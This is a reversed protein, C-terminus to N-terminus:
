KSNTMIWLLKIRTNDATAQQGSSTNTYHRGHLGNNIHSDSSAIDVHKTCALSGSMTTHAIKSKPSFNHVEIVRVSELHFNAVDVFKYAAKNTAM